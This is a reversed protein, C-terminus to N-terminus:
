FDIILVDKNVVTQLVNLVNLLLAREVPEKLVVNM